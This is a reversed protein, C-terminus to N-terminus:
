VKIMTFKGSLNITPGTLTNTQKIEIVGANINASFSIPLVQTESNVDSFGVVTNLLNVAILLKGTRVGSTSSDTLMYDFHAAQYTNIPFSIASIVVDTAGAALAINKTYLDRTIEIGAKSHVEYLSDLSVNGRIGGVSTGTQLNINGSSGTGALKNGSEILINHTANADVTANNASQILLNGTIGILRSPASSGSPSSATYSELKAVEANSFDLISLTGTKMYQGFINAYQKLITGLSVSGTVAPNIDANVATSALNNLSIDAKNPVAAQARANTFYLNVIGETIDDTDLVVVGTQGNVSLVPPSLPLYSIGNHFYALDDFDNYVIAGKVGTPPTGPNFNLIPIVLSNGNFIIDKTPVSITANGSSAVNIELSKSQDVENLIKFGKIFKKINIM